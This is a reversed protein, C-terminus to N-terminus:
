VKSWTFNNGDIRSQPIGVIVCEGFQSLSVNPELAVCVPNYTVGQYGCSSLGKGGKAFLNATGLNLANSVFMTFYFGLNPNACKKCPLCELDSQEAGQHVIGKLFIERSTLIAAIRKYSSLTRGFAAIKSYRPKDEQAKSWLTQLDPRLVPFLGSFSRVLVQRSRLNTPSTLVM